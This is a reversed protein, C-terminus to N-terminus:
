NVNQKMLLEKIKILDCDVQSIYNDITYLTVHDPFLAIKENRSTDPRRIFKNSITYSLKSNPLCYEQLNGYSVPKGGTPQGIITGLQYDRILVSFYTAASFTKHDIIIYIDVSNHTDKKYKKLREIFLDAVSSDGGTNGRLDIVLNSTPIENLSFFIDDLTTIYNKDLVCTAIRFLIFDDNISYGCYEYVDDKILLNIDNSYLISNRDFDNYQNYVFANQSITKSQINGKYLYEISIGGTLTKRGGLSIVKSVEVYREEFQEMKWYINEASIQKCYSEFISSIKVNGIKIIESGDPIYGNGNLVFYHGDIIKFILPIEPGSAIYSLQTHGDNFQALFTALFVSFEPITMPKTINSKAIQFAEKINESGRGIALVHNDCFNKELENFDFLLEDLSLLSQTDENHVYLNNMSLIILSTVLIFLMCFIKVRM